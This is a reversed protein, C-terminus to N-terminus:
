EHGPQPPPVEAELKPFERLVARITVNGSVRPDWCRVAVYYAHLLGNLILFLCFGVYYRNRLSPAIRTAVLGAWGSAHLAIMMILGRLDEPTITGLNSYLVEWENDKLDNPEIGYRVKLLRRALVHWCGQFKRWDEFGAAAISVVHTYFKSVFPRRWKPKTLLWKAIQQAPWKCVQRYIFIKFQYAFGLLYQILADVLIFGSGIVYALFLALGVTGYRGFAFSRESKAALGSAFDPNALVVSILFFLGPIFAALREYAKGPLVKSLDINVM